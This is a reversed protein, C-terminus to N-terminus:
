GDSVVIKERSGKDSYAPKPAPQELLKILRSGSIITVPLDNVMELIPKSTKGTHIFIGMKANKRKVAESLDLVDQKKINGAYRKAQILMLKGQADFVKGDIGGDGTYRKNRKIKYGRQEFCNLLLEEFIFPDIKRLYAFIKADRFEGQFSNLKQQIKRAKLINRKHRGPRKFIWMIGALIIGALIILLKSEETM